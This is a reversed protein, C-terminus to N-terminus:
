NSGSSCTCQGFEPYNTRIDDCCVVIRRPTYINKEDKPKKITIKPLFLKLTALKSDKTKLNIININYKSLNQQYVLNSDLTIFINFGNKEALTLLEGNVKGTWLMSKVTEVEHQTFEKVFNVDINEDLLIKM